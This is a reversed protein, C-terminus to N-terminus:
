PVADRAPVGDTNEEPGTDRLATNIRRRAEVPLAEGEHRALVGNEFYIIVRGRLREGDGRNLQYFYVWRDPEFPDILQPSGMVYRVQAPNLGPRLRELMAEDFLNGQEIDIRYVGPFRLGSCATLLMLGLLLLPLRRQM